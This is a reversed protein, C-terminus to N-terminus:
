ETGAEPYGPLRASATIVRPRNNQPRVNPPLDLSIETVLKRRLALAYDSLARPVMVFAQEGGIVEDAFYSALPRDPNQFEKSPVAIANITYGKDIARARAQELPLGDNNEGNGSIDIVMRDARGPFRDLLLSGVAIASSISTGGRIRRGIGRDGMSSIIGAAMEADKASCIRTWPLISRINQPSAWEFYNIAICGRPNSSLAKMIEPSTLAAAHGNRQMDATAPDISSSFDVAFVVAVDVDLGQAKDTGSARAASGMAAIVAMAGALKTFERIDM